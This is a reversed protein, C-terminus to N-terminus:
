VTEILKENLLEELLSEIDSRCEEPNVDYKELVLKELEEVTKEGTKLAAWILTGVENLSFYEGKEHNLIMEEDNMRTSIQKDSLIYKVPM